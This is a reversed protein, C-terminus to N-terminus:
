IIIIFIVICKSFIVEAHQHLNDLILDHFSSLYTLEIQPYLKICM